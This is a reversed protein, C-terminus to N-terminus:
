VLQIRIRLNNDYIVHLPIRVKTKKVISICMKAVLIQHNIKRLDKSNFGKRFVGFLVEKVTLFIRKGTEAALRNEVHAWLPKTQACSFFFHEMFDIENPCFDCTNTQCVKMKQLIINTPYINHNIKWQLECLRVEKTVNRAMLWVHKDFDFDLKRKWFQEGNPKIILEKHKNQLYEKILKPKKNFQEAECELRKAHEPNRGGNQIWRIWEEPIANVLAHYEFFTVAPNQIIFRQTEELTLLRNEREFVFDKICTIGSTIWNFFHLVQGKFCILTNNFLQQEYVNQSTVDTLITRKKCDLYTLLATKWFGNELAQLGKIEKSSCNMNFMNNHGALKQYHWSPISAWNEHNAGFLKGIWQLYFFKQTEFLNIMNVGGNSYDSEMVKRKVKEFAKKNSFKRQWIFRYLLTNLDVLVEQPLGISQMVYTVQSLLFTKIVVIKGHISLDRRNWLKILKHIRDVRGEWNEKLDRAMKEKTFYIGLIKIKDVVTVPLNHEVAQSGMRMAKTKRINLQLGSFRGFLSVIDIAKEMDHRDKLFLTTDDALQKIKLSELPQNGRLSVSIGAITSNRIKTALLEVALVFGLPSFPCGQRIGCNVQFPKSVWGGHNISSMSDTMLVRVWRQFDPKFGFVEFVHLLYDKSVSDFAKAYDLALLYGAQKTVNLYNVVDDITRIVTAINRGKLYGVQDTSILDQIVAGLRVALVKALIKYDTNLLTIPRWNTLHERDLDSGKHILTIVGQKQTYSLDGSKFSENFAEIVMSGIKCWFMKYFETTLGDNGPASGNNMAKLARTSEELSIMGECTDAQSEQLRPFTEDKIFRETAEKVNDEITKQNYLTEYFNVEEQMIDKNDMLIEGNEKQLKLIVNKKQRSKELSCFYQTAKEGDEIWKIRARTQAGRTKDLQLIELEQKIQMLRRQATEDNLNYLLVKEVEKLESQLEILKNRKQCSLKKGYQICFERIDIKCMEWKDICNTDTEKNANAFNSLMQNMQQVFHQNRLVSNNFRWYGPGRVFASDCLELVVAKHDSNPVIVHDCATCDTLLETSVFIYDLRRAIFPNFRNWTFEKEEGHESRWADHLGLSKVADNLAKVEINKHPQGSIIDVDNNIVCNFDGLLIVESDRYDSLIENLNSFFAMKESSANPAYVNVIIFKFKECQVSVVLLREQSFILEVNGEFHRSVLVAEGKSKNTGKNFFCKGGWQKSWVEVDSETVHTEQLCIIDYKNNKLFKFLSARKLKNRLGRGNLTCVRINDM